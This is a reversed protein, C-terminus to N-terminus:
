HLLREKGGRKKGERKGRKFFKIKEGRLCSNGGKRRKERSYPKEEKEAAGAAFLILLKAGLETV